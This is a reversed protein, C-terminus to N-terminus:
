KRLLVLSLGAGQRDGDRAHTRRSQAPLDGMARRRPDGADAAHHRHDPAPGGACAGYVHAADAPFPVGHPMRRGRRFIAGDGGAMPQGRRAAHPGSVARRSRRPDEQHHRADRPPKRLEHRRARDSVSHRRAAVRRRGHRALVAHRRSPRSCARITSTSIPSIRISAIGTIPRRSRIRPGTRRRRISSSSVRMRTYSQRQRVLCLFGAGRSGPKRRVRRRSGRISTRRITSSLSPSSGCDASMRKRERLQRFDRMTGYGPNIGRYDAIDYGDDAPALPLVADGLDGLRRSRQIYDLKRTVGEFDGVGDDNFRLVVERAASLHHRRSVM